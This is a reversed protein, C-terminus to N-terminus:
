SVSRREFAGSFRVQGVPRAGRFPLSQVYQVPVDQYTLAGDSQFGFREYLEPSGVLVCGKAGRTKLIALGEEILARGVGQRQREPWVAVPGLGFWGERDDGVSVPSFAIHGVIDAGVLAVLSITLEGDERLGDIISAESGNSFAIPRFAAIALEHIIKEDGAREPRIVM